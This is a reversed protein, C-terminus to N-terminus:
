RKRAGGLLPIVCGKKAQVDHEGRGVENVVNGVIEDMVREVVCEECDECDTVDLWGCDGGMWGCGSKGSEDVCKGGCEIEKAVIGVLEDMVCKVVGGKGDLGDMEDMGDMVNSSEMVDLGDSVDLGDMVNLGDVVDLGDLGDMGDLGDSGDLGDLGDLGDMPFCVECDWWGDASEVCESGCM